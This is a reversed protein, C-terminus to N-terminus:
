YFGQTLPPTASSCAEHFFDWHFLWCVCTEPNSGVNPDSCVISFLKQRETHLHRNRGYQQCTILSYVVLLSLWFTVARYVEQTLLLCVNSMKPSNKRKVSVWVSFIASRNILKSNWCRRMSDYRFNFFRYSVKILLNKKQKCFVHMVNILHTNIKPVHIIYRNIKQKITHYAYIWLLM